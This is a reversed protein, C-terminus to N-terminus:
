CDKAEKAYIGETVTLKLDGFYHTGPRPNGSLKRLCELRARRLIVSKERM